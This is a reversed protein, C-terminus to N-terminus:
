LLSLLVSSKVTVGECTASVEALGPLLGTVLGTTTVKALLPTPRSYTCVCDVPLGDIDRAIATLQLTSGVKLKLSVPGLTVSAVAARVIVKVKASVGGACLVNIRVEGAAKATVLGGATVTAIARNDSSYVPTCDCLLGNIDKAVINLKVAAGIKLSGLLPDISVTHPVPAAPGAIVIVKVKATLGGACKVTIWAEGAARATILGNLSVKSIALNDSSFAPQCECPQGFRDKVTLKLKFTEGVLLNKVPSVALTVPPELNVKVIIKVRASVGAACAVTIWVEGAAKAKVRGALSVTAIAKNGSTYTPTCDCALGDLAKAAVKLKLTSGINLTQEGPTVIVTAALRVKAVVDIKVEATTGALCTVKIV